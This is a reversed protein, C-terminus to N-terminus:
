VEEVGQLDKLVEEGNSMIVQVTHTARHFASDRIGELYRQVSVFNIDVIAERCIMCQKNRATQTFLESGNDQEEMHWASTPVPTRPLHILYSSELKLPNFSSLSEFMVCTSQEPDSVNDYLVGDKDMM